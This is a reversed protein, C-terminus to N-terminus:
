SILHAQSRGAVLAACTVVVYMQTCMTYDELPLNCSRLAIGIQLADIEAWTFAFGTTPNIAWEKIIYTWTADPIARPLDEHVVGGTKICVKISQSATIVIPRWCLAYVAIKSIIDIGVIHDQINYLDRLWSTSKTLNRTTHEDSEVEDVNLYHNPCAAGSQKDINCEDGAANPRLTETAM